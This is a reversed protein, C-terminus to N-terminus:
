VETGGTGKLFSWSTSALSSAADWRQAKKTVRLAGSNPTSARM